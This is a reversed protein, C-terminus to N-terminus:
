RVIVFLCHSDVCAASLKALEIVTLPATVILQSRALLPRSLAAHVLVRLEAERESAWQVADAKTKFSKTLPPYGRVRVQAQYGTERKRINAM